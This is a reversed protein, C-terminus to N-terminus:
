PRLLSDIRAHLENEGRSVQVAIHVVILRIDQFLGSFATMKVADKHTTVIMRVNKRKCMTVLEEIDSATYVHHDPFFFSGEVVSGMQGLMSVFQDPAGIACVAVVRSIVASFDDYFLGTLPESLRRPVQRVEIVTTHPVLRNLEMRLSLLDRNMDARTVVILDARALADPPERLVGCPLLEGNGFPNTADLLVIDLDRDLRRHQYGDDLLIMDVIHKKIADEAAKARDDAIIVPVNDLVEQMMIVEDSDSDDKFMFGRTLIVPNKMRSRLYQALYIVFPTKGVGGATINGISIVPKSVKVSKIIDADYLWNVTRIGGRYCCSLPWLLCRVILALPGRDRGTVVRYLFNGM